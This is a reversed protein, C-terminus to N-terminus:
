PQPTTGPTTSASGSTTTAMYGKDRLLKWLTDELAIRSLQERLMGEQFMRAREELRYCEERLDNLQGKLQYVEEMGVLYGSKKLGDAHEFSSTM